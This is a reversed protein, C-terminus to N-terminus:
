PRTPDLDEPPPDMALQSVKGMVATVHSEVVGESRLFDPLRRVASAVQSVIAVVADKDVQFMAIGDLFNALTRERGRPGIGPTHFGGDHPLLDFAPALRWAGNEYLFGVNQFHDDTNGIMYNFVMLRLIAEASGEVGMRRGLDALAKYTLTGNPPTTEAGVELRWLNLLTRASAYHIPRGAGDRDFRDIILAAKGSKLAMIEGAVADIGAARAAKLCAAEVRPVNFLQDDAKEFKALVERGDPLPLIAKPRHGGSPALLGMLQRMPPPPEGGEAILAASEHLQELTIPLPPGGFQPPEPTPTFRLAGTGVAAPHLVWDAEHQPERDGLKKIVYRGWSDPGADAFVGPIGKNTQQSIVIPGVQWRLNFPDLEYAGADAADVWAEDYEFVGVSSEREWELVGVLALQGNLPAWAHIQIAM